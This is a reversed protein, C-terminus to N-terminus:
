FHRGCDQCINETNTHTRKGDGCFGCLLGIWNFLLVGICALCGDFDKGETNKHTITHVNRSGCNPCTM